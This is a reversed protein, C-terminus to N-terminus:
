QPSVTQDKATNYIKWFPSYGIGDSERTPNGIFDPDTNPVDPPTREDYSITKGPIHFGDTQKGNNLLFVIEFPYIEDRLYGRLNTANLENGYNETAPIRYTEWELIIKSAISQYNIRDITTLGKWVLVDRVATLDDAIDYYPFKEFIDEIALSELEKNQGTYTINKSVGTISYTGVREVSAINNITKIVAINFYEFQGSGDLNDIAVTISKGVPTNFNVSVTTPDFIPCPNTITYFATLPNSAADSYQIAFQYSGSTLEGGNTIEKIELSPISFNPQVKLQNCDLEDSYVPDCLISGSKLKYPINDIDLYRRAVNDAWYIETSCNNIKHAVKHIPANVSFGLCPSSVIVRYECDNNVMYGIQSNGTIPNTLFFIHKSQENIFYKGILLYDEPFELCFINGPENQYNISNADFNEVVSNLAYSLKGKIVQGESSDMDMGLRAVNYERIINTPTKEKSKSKSQKAM